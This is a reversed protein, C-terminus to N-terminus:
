VNVAVSGAAALSESSFNLLCRTMFTQVRAHERPPFLARQQMQLPPSQVPLNQVQIARLSIGLGGAGKAACAPGRPRAARPSLGDVRAAHPPLPRGGGDVAGQAHARGDEEALAAVLEARKAEFGKLDGEILARWVRAHMRALRWVTKLDSVHAGYAELMRDFIIPDAWQLLGTFGDAANGQM